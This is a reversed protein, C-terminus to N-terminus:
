AEEESDKEASNEEGGSEKSPQDNAPDAKEADKGEPQPRYWKGRLWDTLLEIEQMTMLADGQEPHYAPMRDNRSGYFKELTPDAIFEMTWERSMYGTLSPGHAASQELYFDHCSTCGVDVFIFQEEEPLGQVEDDVIPRPAELKSEEALVTVIMKKLDNDYRSMVEEGYLEITEEVFDEDGLMDPLTNRVFNVMDGDAFATNGFYEDSTLREIDLFGSIWEESGMSYLNPASPEECPIPSYRPDPEMGEQPTFAHCSACHQEYLVPGQLKPDNRVLTLVGSPPIRQPGLALVAVREAKEKSRKLDAQYEANQADARYSAYTLYALGVTLGLVVAVNLWHLPRVRAIIPMLLLYTVVLGPIVFIAMFEMESGFTEGFVGAFHYLARFSWEPRAVTTTEGPGAPANLPAGLTAQEPLAPHHSEATWHHAYNLLVIVVLVGVMALSRWLAETPWLPKTAPHGRSCVTCAPVGEEHALRNARALAARWLILLLVFVGGFVGIHLALFRTLTFTGFQPGGSFIKFLEEGVFPLMTLFGVRVTTAEKGTVTWPLLDGTLCGGLSLLFLILGIWFVFERPTRYAGRLVLSLVYIGLLAVLVQAAYHHMGRLFWGCPVHYQVYFVSEWATQASPSYYMWLFFGTVAQVFFTFLIM